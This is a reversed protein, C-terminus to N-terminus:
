EDGVYIYRKYGAAGIEGTLVRVKPNYAPVAVLDGRGMLRGREEQTHVLVLKWREVMPLLHEDGVEGSILADAVDTPLKV